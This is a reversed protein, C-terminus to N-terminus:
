DKHEHEMNKCHNSAIFEVGVNMVREKRKKVAKEVSSGASKSSKELHKTLPIIVEATKNTKSKEFVSSMFELFEILQCKDVDNKEELTMVESLGKDRTAWTAHKEFDAETVGPRMILEGYYCPIIEQLAMTRELFFLVCDKKWLNKNCIEKNVYYYDPTQKPRTNKKVCISKKLIDNYILM